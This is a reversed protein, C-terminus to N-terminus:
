ARVDAVDIRDSWLQSPRGAPGEERRSAARGSRTEQRM